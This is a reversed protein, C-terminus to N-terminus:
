YVYTVHAPDSRDVQAPKGAYRVVETETKNRLASAFDERNSVESCASFAIIALATMAVGLPTKSDM